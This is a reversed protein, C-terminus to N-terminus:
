RSEAKIPKALKCFILSGILPLFSIVLFTKLFAPPSYIHLIVRSHLFVQLVSAACAISFSSMVQQFSSMFSSGSAQLNQPISSYGLTNMTTFQMSMIVGNIFILLGIIIIPPHLAVLCLALTTLTMFFSNVILVKRHGYRNLIRVTFFKTALMGVASLATFLGSQLPSYGFGIQLLLPLLFPAAGTILRTFISGLTMIKFNPDRFLSLPILAKTKGKAYFAYIVLSAVGISFIIITFATDIIPDIITDLSVLIAALGISLLIFGQYDFKKSEPDKINDIYHYAFYFGVLGIPINVFFITRWSIYTTLAGGILPGLSPGLLGFTATLSMASTLESRTFNRVFLLRGIPLSLAGGAGQVIRTIVLETLNQSLGCAISGLLFMILASTFIRKAGFRDAMWGSVPIIIGAALLYATLAVKLHLPDTKLTHAIQPLATNIITGDLGEMFFACAVITILIRKKANMVAIVPLTERM